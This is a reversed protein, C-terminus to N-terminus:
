PQILLEMPHATLNLPHTPATSNQDYNRRLRRPSADLIREQRCPLVLCANVKTPIPQHRGLNNQLKSCSRARLCATSKIRLQKSVRATRYRWLHWFCYQFAHRVFARMLNATTRRPRVRSIAATVAHGRALIGVGARHAPTPVGFALSAVYRHRGL